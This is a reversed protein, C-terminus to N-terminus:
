CQLYSLQKSLLIHRVRGPPVAEDGSAELLEGLLAVGLCVAEDHEVPRHVTGPYLVEVGDQILM